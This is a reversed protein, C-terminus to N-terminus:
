LRYGAQRADNYFMKVTDLSFDSLDKGILPIKKLVDTIATIIHCGVADAQYINLLERPSAWVLEANPALRLIEVAAAMLPAPDRGTDAIRGAFVSVLCPPGGILCDTVDRVQVLTLLATVNVKIGDRTLRKVLAYAPEHRTNTVPIKVYVRDGWGAIEHAQCEMEDFEDAFVEFSIPRDPIAQLIDRAFARYDVVGAQRMLTPNTTFGKIYPRAYMELMGARDAGDAYLKIRLNQVPTVQMEQQTGRSLIWETAEALSTVRVDPRSREPEAYLYDIFITTCGARRGAEIDRWRDGVIFSAALDLDHAQAAELLLGPAPKRCNCADADDHYCTQFSDIPLGQALLAAHLAEVTQCTQTGRAVDPQNTVVILKFGARRLRELAERVGPLIFLESLDAPPYPKGGRVITRNIVGDRDLFVARRKLAHIGM